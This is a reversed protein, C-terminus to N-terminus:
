RGGEAILAIGVAAALIWFWCATEGCAASSQQASVACPNPFTLCQAKWTYCSGLM